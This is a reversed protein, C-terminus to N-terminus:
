STAGTVLALHPRAEPQSSSTLRHRRDATAPTQPCRQLFEDLHGALGAETVQTDGIAVLASQWRADWRPMAYSLVIVGAGIAGSVITAPTGEAVGQALAVAGVIFRGRWALRVLPLRSFARGVGLGFGQVIQWPLTWFNLAFDSRVAGSRVLGSSHAIVAAAQEAPLVGERMAAILGDSVVVTRRGGGHAGIPYVGDRVRLEILPPGLKRQCLLAVAPALTAEEAATPRRARLFFRAALSEGVGCLLLATTVPGAILVVWAALAPLVPGITMVLLISIVVGPTTALAKSTSRNM